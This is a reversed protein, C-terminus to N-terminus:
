SFFIVDTGDMYLSTWPYICVLCHLLPIGYCSCQTLLEVLTLKGEADCANPILSLSCCFIYKQKMAQAILLKANKTSALGISNSKLEFM